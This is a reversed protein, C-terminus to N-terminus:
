NWNSMGQLMLCPNRHGVKRELDKWGCQPVLEGIQSV